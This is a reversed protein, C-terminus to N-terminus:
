AALGEDQKEGDTIEIFWSEIQDIVERQIDQNGSVLQRTYSLFEQQLRERKENQLRRLAVENKLIVSLEVDIMERGKSGAPAFKDLMTDRQDNEMSAFYQVQTEIPMLEVIKKYVEDPVQAVLSRPFIKIATLKVEDETFYKLLTAYLKKELEATAGPLIDIIRKLFPPKERKAKVSELKTKLVPLVTEIKDPSFTASRDILDAVMDPDMIKFMEAIINSSLVNTLVVGLEMDEQSFRAAEKASLELLLDCTEYDNILSPVMLMETIKNSVFVFSNSIEEKTLESHLLAKWTSREDHTMTKFLDSLENDDLMTVIASLANMEAETRSKVWGKLMLITDDHHNALAKRFRELGEAIRVTVPDTKTLDIKMDDEEELNEEENNENEPEKAADQARTEAVQKAAADEKRFAEAAKIFYRAILFLSLGMIAAALILGIMLDVNRFFEFWKPVEKKANLQQLKGELKTEGGKGGGAGALGDPTQGKIQNAKLDLFQTNIQPTVESINFTLGAVVKRIVQKTQDNLGSDFTLNIDITKLYNFLNYRDTLEILAKQNLEAESTQTEVPEDGFVPAELGLKNFVIYDDGEKPKEETSFKIKTTQKKKTIMKSSPSSMADKDVGIKVEIIYDDEKIVPRLSKIIKKEISEQLRVTQWELSSIADAGELDKALVLNSLLLVFILFLSSIKEMM